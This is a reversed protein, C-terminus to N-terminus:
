FFTLSEKVLTNRLLQLMRLVFRAFIFSHDMKAEIIRFSCM